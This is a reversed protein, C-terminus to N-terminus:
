KSRSVALAITEVGGRDGEKSGFHFPILPGKEIRDTIRQVRSGKRAMIERNVRSPRTHNIVFIIIKSEEANQPVNTDITNNNITEERRQSVHGSKSQKRRQM